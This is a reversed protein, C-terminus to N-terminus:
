NKKYGNSYKWYKVEYFSVANKNVQLKGKIIQLKIKRFLNIFRLYM